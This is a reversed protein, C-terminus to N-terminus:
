LMSNLSLPRMGAAGRLRTDSLLTACSHRRNTCWLKRRLSYVVYHGVRTLTIATMGKGTGDGCTGAHPYPLASSVGGAKRVTLVATTLTENTNMVAMLATSARDVGKVIKLEQIQVRGTRQGGIATPATMGWSWDQVDIQNAFVKDNSEGLIEGTRQGTVKLFMDSRAM